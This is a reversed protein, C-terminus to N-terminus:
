HLAKATNITMMMTEILTRKKGTRTTSLSIATGTHSPQDDKSTTCTGSMRGRTRKGPKSTAWSTGSSFIVAPRRGPQAAISHPTGGTTLMPHRIHALGIQRAPSSDLSKRGLSNLNLVRVTRNPEYTTTTTIITWIATTTSTPHNTSAINHHHIDPSIQSHRCRQPRLRLCRAPTAARRRARLALTRHPHRHAAAPVNGRHKNRPPTSHSQTPVGSPCLQMGATHWDRHPPPVTKGFHRTRRRIWTNLYCKNEACLNIHFGAESSSYVLLYESSALFSRDSWITMKQFGTFIFPSFPNFILDKSIGM